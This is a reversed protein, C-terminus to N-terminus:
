KNLKRQKLLALVSLIIGIVAIASLVYSGYRNVSTMNENIAYLPMLISLALLLFILVTLRSKSYNNAMMTILDERQPPKYGEVEILKYFFFIRFLIMLLIYSVVFVILADVYNLSFFSMFAFAVLICISFMSTYVMYNKVDSNTIVFARKTIFDYWITGRKPDQYISLGVLDKPKLNNKPM